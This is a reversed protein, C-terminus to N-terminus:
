SICVPRVPAFPPSVEQRSKKRGQRIKEAERDKCSTEQNTEARKQNQGYEQKQPQPSPGFKVSGDEAPLSIEACKECSEPNQGVSSLLYILPSFSTPLAYDM